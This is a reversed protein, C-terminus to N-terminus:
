QRCSKRMCCLVLVGDCSEVACFFRYYTPFWTAFYEAIHQTSLGHPCGTSIVVTSEHSLSAYFDLLAHVSCALVILILQQQYSILVGCVLDSDPVDHLTGPACAPIPPGGCQSITCGLTNWHKSKNRPNLWWIKDGFTGNAFVSSVSKGNRAAHDCHLPLLVLGCVGLYQDTHLYRM